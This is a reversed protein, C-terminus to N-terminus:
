FIGPMFLSLIGVLYCSFRTLPRQKHQHAHILGVSTKSVMRRIAGLVDNCVLLVGDPFASLNFSFLLSVIILGAGIANLLSVLNGFVANEDLQLLAYGGRNAVRCDDWSSDFWHYTL